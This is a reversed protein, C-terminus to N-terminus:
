VRERERAKSKRGYSNRLDSCAMEQSRGKGSRQLTGASLCIEKIFDQRLDLLELDTNLRLAMCSRVNFRAVILINYRLILVLTCSM